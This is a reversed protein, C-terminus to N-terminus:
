CPIGKRIGLFWQYVGLWQLVSCLSMSIESICAWRTHNACGKLHNKDFTQCLRLQSLETLADRVARSPNPYNM